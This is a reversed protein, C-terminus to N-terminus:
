ALEEKLIARALSARRSITPQSAGLHAAAEHTTLGRLEVLTFAEACPQPLARFARDFDARFMATDLTAFSTAEGDRVYEDASTATLFDPRTILNRSYDTLVNLGTRWLLAPTLDDHRALRAFAESALDEGTAPDSHRSLYKALREYESDFLESLTM